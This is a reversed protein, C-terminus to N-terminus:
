ASSRHQRVDDFACLLLADIEDQAWPGGKHKKSQISDVLVLVEELWSDDTIMYTRSGCSRTDAEESSNVRAKKNNM